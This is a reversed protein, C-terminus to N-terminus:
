KDLAFKEIAAAVGDEENSFTIYDAAEKVAEQANAMAVGVGASRIMALDNGGDGCAMIEEQSIGLLRGLRLLGQGKDVGPANVELNKQMASTIELDGLERIRLNAEKREEADIFMAHIKDLGHGEMERMLEWLDPLSKRTSRVYDAVAPNTVYRDVRLLEDQQIYGRGNFYIERITDYDGLIKLIETAVDYPLLSEYLIKNERIDVIRAGNSSVVYRIGPFELLMQPVGTVPRGTSVVIIIGQEIARELVKRTRETLEKKENLLTGDLDLGIMKITNM